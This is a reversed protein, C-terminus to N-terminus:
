RLYDAARRDIRAGLDRTDRLRAYERSERRAQLVSRAFRWVIRLLLFLLALGLALLLIELIM